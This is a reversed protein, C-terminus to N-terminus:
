NEKEGNEPAMAPIRILQMLAQVIENKQREIQSFINRSQMSM